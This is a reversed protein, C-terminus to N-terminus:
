KQSAVLTDFTARDVFTNSPFHRKFLTQGTSTMGPGLTFTNSEFVTTVSRNEYGSPTPGGFNVGPAMVGYQGTTMVSNRITFPGMPVNTSAQVISSGDFVATVNTLTVDLMGDVALILIGRGGNSAKSIAFTSRQLTVNKTASPTVSNYDKGLLQMGGAVDTVTLGDLLVTDIFQGNKPTIVIAWGDQSAAFSNRLVADRLTVRKGAKIEFLNKVARNVGDTQWSDPKSLEVGEIVVDAVVGEPCDKIKLTDGGLMINESGAVYTGGTVTVPGCSNGIWIGQSDALTPTWTDLVTSDTITGACNWEIGRRGRHTPVRVRSFAIGIPMQDATVQTAGNDGCQFVTNGASTGVVNEVSVHDINPPIYLAPGSTGHLFAGNGLIRTHAHWVVFRSSSFSAGSELSITGGTNLAAQLDDGAKVTVVPDPTPVPPTLLATAKKGAEEILKLVEVVEPSLTPTSTQASVVTTLPVWILALAIRNCIM